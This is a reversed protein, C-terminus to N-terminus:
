SIIEYEKIHFVGLGPGAHFNGTARIHKHVLDVLRDSGANAGIHYEKEDNASISVATVMGSDDWSCATVIGEIVTQGSSQNKM